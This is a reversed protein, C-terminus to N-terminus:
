SEIAVQDECRQCSLARNTKLRQQRATQRAADLKEPVDNGTGFSMKDPSQGRFASHQQSGYATSRPVGTEVAIPVNGTTRVQEKLRHDYRQKTRTITDMGPNDHCKLDTALSSFNNSLNDPVRISFLPIHHCVVSLYEVNRTKVCRALRKLIYDKM